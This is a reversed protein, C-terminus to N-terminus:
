KKKFAQEIANEVIKVIEDTLEGDVYKNVEDESKTIIEEKNKQYEIYEEAEIEIKIKNDTVEGKGKISSKLKGSKVPVMSAIIGALKNAFGSVSGQLSKLDIKM